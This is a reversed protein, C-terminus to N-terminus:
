NFLKTQILFHLKQKRFESQNGTASKSENCNTKLGYDGEKGEALKWGFKRLFHSFM